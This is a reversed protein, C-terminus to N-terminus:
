REGIMHLANKRARHWHLAGDCHAYHRFGPAGCTFHILSACAIDQEMALANWEAPLAGVDEDKLWEFRHLLSGPAENVFERTLIRNKPHACNWLIVSSRNKGAYDLNAAEMPTGVYKVPHKTRYDHKVVQVAYKPERLAWLKAIDDLAVMDGDCFIAFGHWGQLSPVLFRSYIFANTGDKQGDFGQLMPKHLPYFAVPVSAREIVSQCFVTYCAAERPDFGIYLPIAGNM